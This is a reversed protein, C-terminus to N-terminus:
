SAKEENTPENTAQMDLEERAAQTADPQHRALVEDVDAIEKAAKAEKEATVKLQAAVNAADIAARQEPTPTVGKADTVPNEYNHGGYTPSWEGHMSWNEGCIVCYGPKIERYTPGSKASHNLRKWPGDSDIRAPSKTDPDLAVYMLELALDMLAREKRKGILTLLSPVPWDPRIANISQALREGEIRTLM